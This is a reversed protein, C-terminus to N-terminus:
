WPRFRRWGSTPVATMTFARKKLKTDQRSPFSSTAWKGSQRKSRIVFGSRKLHLIDRYVTQDPRGVREGLDADLVRRLPLAYWATTDAPFALARDYLM